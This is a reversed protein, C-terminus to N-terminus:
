IILCFSSCITRNLTVKDHMAHDSQSRKIVPSLPTQAPLQGATQFGSGPTDPMKARGFSSLRSPRSATDRSVGPINRSQVTTVIM